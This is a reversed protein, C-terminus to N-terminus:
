KDYCFECDDLLLVVTCTSTTQIEGKLPETVHYWESKMFWQM